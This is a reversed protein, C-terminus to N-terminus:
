GAKHYKKQYFVNQIIEPFVAAAAIDGCLWCDGLGGQRIDHPSIGDSFLVPDQM